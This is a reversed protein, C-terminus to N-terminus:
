ENREEQCTKPMNKGELAKNESPHPKESVGWFLPNVWGRGGASPTGRVLRHGLRPGTRHTSASQRGLAALALSAACPENTAGVALFVGNFLLRQIPPDRWSQLALSPTSRPKKNELPLESKLRLWPVELGHKSLSQYPNEVSEGYSGKSNCELSCMVHFHVMGDWPGKVFVVQSCFLVPERKQWKWTIHESNAPDETGKQNRDSWAKWESWPDPRCREPSANPLQPRRAPPTGREPVPSTSLM